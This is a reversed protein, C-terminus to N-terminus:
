VVQIIKDVNEVTGSTSLLGSCKDNEVNHHGENFIKYWDFVLIKWYANSFM